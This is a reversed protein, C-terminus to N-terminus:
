GKMYKPYNDKYELLAKSQWLNPPAGPRAQLKKYSAATAACDVKPFMFKSGNAILTMKYILGASLTLMIGIIIWVIVRKVTRERPEYQRNEWIIDTPESAPQIEIDEGLLAQQKPCEKIDSYVLARQLGEETEFTAFVSCPTQMKNLFTGDHIKKEIKEEVAVAKEWKENKLYYGRDTLLDIM